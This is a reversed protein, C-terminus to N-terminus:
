ASKGREDRTLGLIGFATIFIWTMSVYWVGEGAKMVSQGAMYRERSDQVKQAVAAAEVAKEQSPTMTPLKSSSAVANGDM